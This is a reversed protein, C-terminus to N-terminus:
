PSSAQQLGYRPVARVGNALFKRHALDSEAVRGRCQNDSGRGGQKSPKSKPVNESSFLRQDTASHTVFCHHEQSVAVSVDSKTDAQIPLDTRLCQRRVRSVHRMQALKEGASVSEMSTKDRGIGLSMAPWGNEKKHTDNPIATM